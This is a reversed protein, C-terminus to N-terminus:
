IGLILPRLAKPVSVLVNERNLHHMKLFVYKYKLCALTLFNSTLRSCIESISDSAKKNYAPFYELATLHEMNAKTATHIDKCLEKYDAHLSALISKAPDVQFFPLRKVSEFMAFISKETLINQIEDANFGKLFTEISSRLMMRSPKYAGHVMVFIANGIDSCSETLYEKQCDSISPQVQDPGQRNIEAIFTLFSFYKKHVRSITSVFHGNGELVKLSYQEFFGLLAKLDSPIERSM